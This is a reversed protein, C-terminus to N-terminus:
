KSRGFAKMVGPPGNFKNEGLEQLANLVDDPAGNREAAKVLDDKSAPYDVGELYKQLEIPTTGSQQNPM